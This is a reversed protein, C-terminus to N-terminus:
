NGMQAAAASAEAFLASAEDLRGDLLHAEALLWLAQDRWPSWVPEEALSCAADAMMREPGGACIGARLQARASEFSATGSSPESDFTAADSVAAWREANVTDGTLVGEWAALVALPPYRAIKADGLAALWRRVTSLQGAMYTPLALKATLRVSRDSDATHLL